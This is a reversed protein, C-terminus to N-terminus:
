KSFVWGILKRMSPTQGQALVGIRFVKGGAWVCLLTFAVAGVVGLALEWAPPGPPVGVRLMMLFPTAPPILSMVSSFTSNPEKIVQLWVFMPLMIILMAPMMLSQADRIESCAAGIASFISGYILLAMLQFPLFWVFLSVPIKELYGFRQAVVSLGGIYLVSLLWSAFVTGLLKGLFLEFASVSAVLVESIRQMKEELVINLQMPAAMMVLMFLLWMSAMPIVFTAVKDVKEAAQVAGTDTVTTLGYAQVNARLNLRQRDVVSIGLGERVNEQIRHTMLGGLWRRLDAYTPSDSHYTIGQGTELAEEGIVVYAFLQGDRVRKSLASAEADSREPVFPPNETREAAAKEIMGYFAGGKDIVAFRRETTDVRKELLVQVGIAGLMLVPMMVVSIIFAKTRVLNSFEAGAVRWAKNWM